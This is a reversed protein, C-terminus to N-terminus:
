HAVSCAVVQLPVVAFCLREKKTKCGVSSFIEKWIDQLNIHNPFWEQIYITVM